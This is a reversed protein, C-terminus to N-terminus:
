CGKYNKRVCERALKQATKLQSPTMKGEIFDRLAGKKEGGTSVAISGWMHTYIYDKLVGTGFAYMAGLNVQADAYGQEAALKWWKL